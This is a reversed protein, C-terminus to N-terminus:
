NNEESISELLLMCGKRAFVIYSSKNSGTFLNYLKWLNINGDADKCFSNDRYFDKVVTGLQTDSLLLP